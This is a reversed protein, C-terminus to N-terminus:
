RALLLAAAILALAVFQLLVRLQMLKNSRKAGSIGGGKVLSGIGLALVIGTAAVAIPILAYLAVEMRGIHPRRELRFLGPRVMGTSRVVVPASGHGRDLVMRQTLHVRADCREVFPYRVPPVSVSEIM